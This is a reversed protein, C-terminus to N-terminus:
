IDFYYYVSFFFFKFIKSSILKVAGGNLCVPVTPSSVNCLWIKYSLEAMRRSDHELIEAQIDHYMLPFCPPRNFCVNM